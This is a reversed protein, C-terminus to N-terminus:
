SDGMMELNALPVVVRKGGKLKVHAAPVRLGNEVVQLSEPIETIQAVQGDYPVRRLRVSMGVKLPEDFNPPKPAQGRLSAPLVIEPRGTQWREPTTADFAGERQAEFERLIEYTRSSPNRPGFGETLIVPVKLMIATERLDYPMSPAVLGGLAKEVVVKLDDPEISRELIYIRGRLNDLLSDVERLSALGDKPEMNYAGFSFKGNGWACQILTGVSRIRVGRGYDEGGIIQVVTGPIRAYIEVPKPDIQLIVRGHEVLSVIGDSPALPVLKRERRRRPRALPTGTTVEDGPGVTIIKLWTEVHAPNIRMADAIDIIRYDQSATGSAVVKNYNVEDGEDVTVQGYAGPPLMRNRDFTTSKLIISGAPHYDM